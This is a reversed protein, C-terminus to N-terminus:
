PSRAPWHSLQTVTLRTLPWTLEVIQVHTMIKTVLNHLLVDVRSDGVALRHKDLFPGSKQRESPILCNFKLKHSKRM